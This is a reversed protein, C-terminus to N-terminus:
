LMKAMEIRVKHCEPDTNSYAYLDFGIMKFGNKKYFSIAKENCSQTELVVMRAGRDEAESLITNMLKTGIGHHRMNVDAIGIDSIRFRNNWKELFGEVYGVLEDNEFAGYAVPNDLWEEFLCGEFSIETPADFKKYNVEFGKETREIDYYGQTVYKQVFKQGAYTERDLKKIIM